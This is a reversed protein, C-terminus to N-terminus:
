ARAHAALDLRVDGLAEGHRPRVRRRAHALEDQGDPGDPRRPVVPSCASGETALEVGVGEHRGEEVRARVGVAIGLDQQGRDALEHGLHRALHAVAEQDVAEGGLAVQALHAQGGELAARGLGPLVRASRVTEYGPKTTVPM